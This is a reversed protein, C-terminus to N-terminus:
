MNNIIRQFCKPCWGEENMATRTILNVKYNIGCHSCKWTRWNEPNKEERDLMEENDIDM